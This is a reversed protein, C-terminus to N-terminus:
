RLAPLYQQFSRFSQRGERRLKDVLAHFLVRARHPREYLDEGTAYELLHRTESRSTPTREDTTKETRLELGTRLAANLSENRVLNLLVLMEGRRAEEDWLGNKRLYRVPDGAFSLVTGGASKRLAHGFRGLLLREAVEQWHAPFRDDDATIESVRRLYALREERLPGAELESVTGDECVIPVVDVAALAGGRFQLDAVLGWQTHPDSMEFGFNGLSYLIPTDRYVEWGQPVHPHHGVVADVGLDAFERFRARREPPSFPVREVGGHAVVVVADHREVASALREDVDPHNQWAAGPTDDDAIGFERECLDFVAVDAGGVDRELPELARDHTEGAGCTALGVEDCAAVTAALGEAGHDLAHNNALTAADFGASRLISPMERSSELTPGAKAVPDADSRVPAELNALALDASALRDALPDAVSLARPDGKDTTDGAVALSWPEGDADAVELRWGDGSM